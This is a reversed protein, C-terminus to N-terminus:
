INNMITNIGYLEILLAKITEYCEQKERDSELKDYQMSLVGILQEKHYRAIYNEVGTRIKEDM